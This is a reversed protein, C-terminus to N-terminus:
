TYGCVRSAVVKFSEELNFLSRVSSESMTLPQPRFANEDILVPYLWLKLILIICQRNRVMAWGMSQVDGSSCMIIYLDRLEETAMSADLNTVNENIICKPMLIRMLIIFIWWLKGTPGAFGQRKGADSHDTCPSTCIITDVPTLSCSKGHIVCPAIFKFRSRHARLLKRLREPPEEVGGDLRVAKRLCEPVFELVDGFIHTPPHPSSKLEAQAQASKEVVWEHQFVVPQVGATESHDCLYDKAAATIMADAICDSGVGGFLTGSTIIRNSLCKCMAAPTFASAGVTDMGHRAWAISESPSKCVTPERSGMPGVVDHLSLVDMALQNSVSILWPFLQSAVRLRRPNSPSDQPFLSFM